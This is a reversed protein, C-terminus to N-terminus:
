NPCSDVDEGDVNVAASWNWDSGLPTIAAAPLVASIEGEVSTDPAGSLNTQKGGSLPFYFYGAQQGDVIKYGLQVANSGQSDAATFSWLVSGSTPIEGTYRWVVRVAEGAYGPVGLTTSVATLDIPNAPTASTCESEPGRVVVKGSIDPAAETTSPAPQTSTTSNIPDLAASTISLTATSALEDSSCATAGILVIGMMVAVGARKM